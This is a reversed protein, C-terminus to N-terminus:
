RRFRRWFAPAISFLLLFGFILIEVSIAIAKRRVDDMSLYGYARVQFPFFWTITIIVFALVLTIFSTRLISWTDDLDSELTEIKIKLEENEKKLFEISKELEEIRSQLENEPM